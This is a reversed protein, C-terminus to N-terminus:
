RPAVLMFVAFMTSNPLWFISTIGSSSSFGFGIESGAYYALAVVLASLLMTLSTRSTVSHSDPRNVEKALAVTM